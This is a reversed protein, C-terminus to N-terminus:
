GAGCWVEGIWEANPGTGDTIGYGATATWISDGGPFKNSGQWHLNTATGSTPKWVKANSDSIPAVVFMKDLADSM